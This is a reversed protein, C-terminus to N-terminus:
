EVDKCKASMGRPLEHIAECKPCHIFVQMDDTFLVLRTDRDADSYRILTEDGALPNEYLLEFAPIPKGDKVPLRVSAATVNIQLSLDKDRGCVPCTIPIEKPRSM